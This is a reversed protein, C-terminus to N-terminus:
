ERIRVFNLHTEFKVAIFAEPNKNTQEYDDSPAIRVVIAKAKMYTEMEDTGPLLIAIELLQGPFYMDSKKTLFKAGGGSVNELVSKDEFKKGEVDESYVELVFDISLREFERKYSEKDM